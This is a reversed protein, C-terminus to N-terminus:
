VFDQESSECRRRVLLQSALTSVGFVIRGIGTGLIFGGAFHVLPPWVATMVAYIYLLMLLIAGIIAIDVLVLVWKRLQIEFVLTTFALLLTVIGVPLALEYFEFEVYKMFALFLVGEIISLISLTRELTERTLM